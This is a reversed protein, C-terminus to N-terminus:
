RWIRPKDPDVQFPVLEDPIMVVRGSTEGNLLRSRCIDMFVPDWAHNWWEGRELAAKDSGPDLLKFQNRAFASRDEQRYAVVLLFYSGAKLTKAGSRPDTNVYDGESGAGEPLNKDFLGRPPGVAGTWTYTKRFYWPASQTAPSGAPPAELASIPVALPSEATTITGTGPDRTETIALKGPAVRLPIVPMASYTIDYDRSAVPAKDEGPNGAPDPPKVPEVVAVDTPWLAFMSRSNASAQARPSNLSIDRRWQARDSRVFWSQPVAYFELAHEEVRNFSFAVELWAGRANLSMTDLCSQGQFGPQEARRTANFALVRPPLARSLSELLVAAWAASRDICDNGVDEM